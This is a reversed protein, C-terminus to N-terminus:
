QDLIGLRRGADVAEASTSVKLKTRVAAAHHDVTKVSLYLRQAIERYTLGAALLRLVDVQRETLGAPNARTSERPGRPVQKVGMDAMRRRVMAARPTAGLGDLIELAEFLPDPESADALADAHEYPLNLDAWTAAAERWRGAIQSAFPEPLDSPLDEQTGARHLWLAAKGIWRGVGTAIATQLAPSAVALVAESDGRLWALEAQVLAAPLIHQTEGSREALRRAMAITQQAELGGRRAQLWGLVWSATIRSVDETDLLRSADQGAASWHGQELNWWARTAVLYRARAILDHAECYALGDELYKAAQTHQMLVTHVTALNVYARSAEDTIGEAKAMELGDVLLGHGEIQSLLRAVGASIMANAVISPDNLERALAVGKDGWTVAEPVRFDLLALKSRQAYARALEPGAAIGELTAVAETVVAEALESRGQFWHVDSLSCLDFGLRRQDGGKRRM